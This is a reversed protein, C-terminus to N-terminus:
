CSFPAGPPAGEYWCNTRHMNRVFLWSGNPRQMKIHTGIVNHGYGYVPGAYYSFQGGDEDPCAKYVTGYMTCADVYM